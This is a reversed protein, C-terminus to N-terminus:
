DPSSTGLVRSHDLLLLNRLEDMEMFIGNEPCKKLRCNCLISLWMLKIVFEHYDAVSSRQSSKRRIM